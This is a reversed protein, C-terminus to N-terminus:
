VHARGIQYFGQTAKLEGMHAARAEDKRPKPADPKGSPAPKAPSASNASASAAEQRLLPPARTCRLRVLRCVLGLAGEDWRGGVEVGLVVLSTGGGGLEPYRRVKRRRAGLLAMGDETLVSEPHFQVGHVPRSVHRIGMILDDDQSRATVVLEAPLSDEDVALSHYRGVNIVEPLGTFLGQSDHTIPSAM